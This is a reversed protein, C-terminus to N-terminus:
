PVYPLVYPTTRWPTFDVVGSVGDGAPGTPGAADGWWNNEAIAGSPALARIGVGGNNVMNCDHVDIGDAWLDIGEAVSERVECGHVSATPSTVILGREASGRILTSELTTSDALDVAASTTTTDVRSRSIRSHKSWLWAAAGTQRIVASDIVAPHNETAFVGIFGVYEIRVNTFYSPLAPAGKLEIGDWGHGTLLVPAAATGRAVVTGGGQAVIQVGSDMTLSAGPTAHLIGVWQVFIDATVRWPITSSANAYWQLTGGTIVVTDRANGLLSDQQSPGLYLKPFASVVMEAPYGAGGVVRVPQAALFAAGPTTVQLGVGGSGEVRGGLVSMGSTGVVALGTGAAGRIVTKEFTTATGMTVAATVSTVTDVRSRRLATGSGWLFLGQENQRFVASDINAAHSDHTSFATIYDTHELVVNRLSSPTAPTGFLHVGWWGDAPDSATLVIRATDLGGAVLRGGNSAWLGGGNGFCVLVGPELTLVGASKITVWVNVRHPNNARSWTEPAVVSDSHTTGGLGPDCAPNLTHAPRGPTTRGSEPALPQDHGCAALGAALLAVALLRGAARRAGENSGTM